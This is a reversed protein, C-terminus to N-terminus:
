AEVAGLLASRVAGAPAAIGTWVAFSLLGQQLLM